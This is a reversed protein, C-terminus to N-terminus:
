RYVYSANVLSGDLAKYELYITSVRFVNYYVHVNMNSCSDSMGMFALPSLVSASFEGDATTVSSFYSEKFKFEPYKAGSLDIISEDGERSVIKGDSVIVTGFVTEIMSEPTVFKGDVQTFQGLKEETYVIKLGNEVDSYVYTSKLEAGNKATTSVTVTLTDFDTSSMATTLKGYLTNDVPNPVNDGTGNGGCATFSICILLLLTITSIIKKM